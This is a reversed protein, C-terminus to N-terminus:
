VVQLLPWAQEFPTHPQGAPCISQPPVQVSVWLSVLLQPAHPLAQLTALPVAPHLLPTQVTAEQL